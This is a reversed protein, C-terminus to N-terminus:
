RTGVNEYWKLNATAPGICVIDARTDANLDIACGAGAMGGEDLARKTWTAGGKAVSYLMLSHAGGRQGAVVEGRGDKDTVVVQYGGRLGTGTEHAVFQVAAGDGTQARAPLLRAAFIVVAICPLWGAANRPTM